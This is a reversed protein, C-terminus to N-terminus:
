AYSDLMEEEWTKIDIATEVLTSQLVNGTIWALPYRTSLNSPTNNIRPETRCLREGYDLDRGPVRKGDPILNLRREETRWCRWYKTFTNMGIASGLGYFRTLTARYERTELWSRVVEERILTGHDFGRYKDTWQGTPLRLWYVGAQVVTVGTFTEPSWEGLTNGTSLVFPDLTIIADTAFAIVSSPNQMAARYIKARTAATIQGAWLLHHYTPIRGHRYGAQQALKGYVSNMGLKLAEHAMSGREKFIQRQRYASRLFAFPKADIAPYYNCAQVITFDTGETYNEYLARIEVGFYRGRGQRPYLISGDKARYWLPYFPAINSYSWEVDVISSDNDNWEDEFSWSGGAYSPLWLAESPYASNIDYRYVKTTEDNGVMPTEIRGGGYAFQSWRQVDDPITGKHALVNNAKFLASAISGAGDFRTLRIGAEDMAEFLKTVLLVLMQCEVYNYKIIADINATDFTSRKDKMAQIEDFVQMQGAFDEGLWKRCAKVFSSQFYGLVDWLVFNRIRRNTRRTLQSVSFRKRHSYSIAYGKWFCTGTQWLRRLKDETEQLTILIMNVDYSGGYIVNIAKDNSYKLFYDFCQQTTLGDHNLIYKGHSNALLNYIHKGTELNAGEGDWAVIHRRDWKSVTEDGM